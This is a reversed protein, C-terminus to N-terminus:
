PATFDASAAWQKYTPLDMEAPSARWPPGPLERDFGLLFADRVIVRLALEFLLEGQDELELLTTVFRQFALARVTRPLEGRDQVGHVAELAQRLWEAAAPEDGIVQGM